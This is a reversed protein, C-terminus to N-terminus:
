LEGSAMALINRAVKYDGAQQIIEKAKRKLHGSTHALVQREKESGVAAIILNSEVTTSYNSRVLEKITNNAIGINNRCVDRIMETKTM